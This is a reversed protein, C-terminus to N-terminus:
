KGTAQNSVTDVFKSVDSRIEEFSVKAGAQPKSARYVIILSLSDPSGGKNDAHFGVLLRCAERVRRRIFNRRVAIGHRKGVVIGIQIPPSQQPGFRYIFRLLKGDLVTGNARIAEFAARNPLSGIKKM